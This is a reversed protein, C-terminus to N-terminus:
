ASNFKKGFEAANKNFKEPLNHATNSWFCQIYLGSRHWIDLDFYHM